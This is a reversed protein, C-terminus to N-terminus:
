TIVETEAIKIAQEFEAQTIQCGIPWKAKQKAAAFLWDPTNLRAALQEITELNAHTAPVPEVPHEDAVRELADNKAPKGVTDEM